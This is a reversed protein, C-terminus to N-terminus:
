KNWYRSSQDLATLCSTTPSPTRWSTSARHSMTTIECLPGDWMTSHKALMDRICPHFEDDVHNHTINGHTVPSAETIPQKFNTAKHTYRRYMPYKACEPCGAVDPSPPAQTEDSTLDLVDGLTFTSNLTANPHHITTAINKGKMLTSPQSWFNAVLVSFDRGTQCLM